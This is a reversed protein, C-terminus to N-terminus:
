LRKKNFQKKVKQVFAFIYSYENLGACQSESNLKHYVIKSYQKKEIKGGEFYNPPDM